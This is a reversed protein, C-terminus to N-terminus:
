KVITVFMSIVYLIGVFVVSSLVGKLMDKVCASAGAVCDYESTYKSCGFHCKGGYPCDSTKM